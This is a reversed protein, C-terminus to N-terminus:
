MDMKCPHIEGDDEEMENLREQIDMKNHDRDYDRDSIHSYGIRTSMPLRMSPLKIKM